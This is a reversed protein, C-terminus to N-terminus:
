GPRGPLPRVLRHPRPAAQPRGVMPARSNARCLPRNALAGSRLRRRPRHRPWSSGRLRAREDEARDRGPRRAPARQAAELRARRPRRPRGAPPRGKRRGGGRAALQRECVRGPPGVAVLRPQEGPATRGAVLAGSRGPGRRHAPPRPRRRRVHRQAVVGRRPLRGATAPVRGPRRDLAGRPLTVLLRGSAPLSTLAPQANETGPEVVDHVLDAVKAGAPSLAIGAVLLAMALALALRNLRPRVHVPHRAEFAGHVVRWGREEAEREEPVFVERLREPLRLESM